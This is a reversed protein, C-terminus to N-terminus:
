RPCKRSFISPGYEDYEAKIVWLESFSSLSSLILAGKWGAIDRDEMATVEVAGSHPM